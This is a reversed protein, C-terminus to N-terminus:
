MNERKLLDDTKPAQKNIISDYRTVNGSFTVVKYLSRAEWVILTTKGCYNSNSGQHPKGKALVMNPERVCHISLCATGPKDFVVYNRHWDSRTQTFNHLFRDETELSTQLRAQDCGWSYLSGWTQAIAKKLLYPNTLGAAQDYPPSRLVNLIHFSTAEFFIVSLGGEKIDGKNLYEKESVRDELNNYYWVEQQWKLCVRERIQHGTFNEWYDKSALLVPIISFEKAGMNESFRRRREEEKM